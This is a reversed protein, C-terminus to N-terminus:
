CDGDCHEITEDPWLIVQIKTGAKVSGLCFFFLAEAVHTNNSLYAVGLTPVPPLYRYLTADYEDSGPSASPTVLDSLIHMHFAKTRAALQLTQFLASCTTPKRYPSPKRKMKIM